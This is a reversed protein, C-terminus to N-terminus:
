IDGRRELLWEKGGADSGVEQELWDYTNTLEIVEYEFTRLGDGMQIADGVEIFLPSDVDPDEVPDIAFLVAQGAEVDTGVSGFGEEKFPGFQIDANPLEVTTDSPSAPEWDGTKPDRTAAQDGTEKVLTITQPGDFDSFAM